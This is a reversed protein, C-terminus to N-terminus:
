GVCYTIQIRNQLLSATLALEKEQLLTSHPGNVHKFQLKLLQQAFNIDMDTLEDGMLICEMDIKQKKKPPSCSGLDPIVEAETRTTDTPSQPQNENEAEDLIEEKVVPQSPPHRLEKESPYAVSKKALSSCILKKAKECEASSQLGFTLKCPVKLGGQILDPSYRRRGNSRM